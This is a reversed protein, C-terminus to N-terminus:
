SCVNENYKLAMRFKLKRRPADRQIFPAKQYIFGYPMTIPPVM